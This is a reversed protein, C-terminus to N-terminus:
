EKQNFWAEIVNEAPKNRFTSAISIKPKVEPDMADDWAFSAVNIRQINKTTTLSTFLADFVSAQYDYDSPTNKVIDSRYDLIELLERKMSDTYSSPAFFISLQTKKQQAVADLEKIYATIASSTEMGHFKQPVDYIRMEVIDANKYFDYKSRDERGDRDEFFGYRSVEVYIKGTFVKRLETILQTQLDNALTEHWAFRPEMWTPSISMIDVGAKQYEIGKEIMRETRKAFYDKIWEESYDANFKEFDEVVSNQIEWKIGKLIYKGINVFAMNHKIGLKLWRQHAENALTQLEKYSISQDRMDNWFTEDAITYNTTTYDSWKEFIARHFDHVYVEQAGLKAVRDFSSSINNRTDEFMSMNYNRGRTDVMNVAKTQSLATPNVDVSYENRVFDGACRPPMPWPGQPPCIEFFFMLWSWVLFLAIILVITKFAKRKMATEYSFLNNLLSLKEM